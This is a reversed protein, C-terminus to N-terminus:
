KSLVLWRGNKQVLKDDFWLEGGEPGSAEGLRRGGRLDKIMDWHIASENASKTEKYGKGLAIHITGGIKEDFLIDKTFRKIKFNNGIGLEGIFRAGKDTDLIENLDAEGKEAQAKVVKGNKFELKVSHFERGQFLAPYTYTIFGSPSNEVVSTFVEGSPMNNEGASNVAKRGSINLRLDTGEGVIHVESTRDVLKRLNEQKRYLNVWDVGNIAKYVFDAYESLSMGAEQAQANTPYKTVVWRTKEVRYDLIPRLTKTRSSIKAADVGTLGRLNASSGIRIYCDIKKMEEMEVEPFHEIQTKTANRFFAEEFEYNSFKLRVEGAKRKILYKYIELVLPKAEFDSIIVVNDKPKVKLSYDVLIKAQKTIRPDILTM